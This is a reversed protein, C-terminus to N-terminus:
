DLGDETQINAIVPVVIHGSDELKHCSLLCCKCPNVRSPKASETIPYNSRISPEWQDVYWTVRGLRSTPLLKTQILHCFMINFASQLVMCICIALFMFALPQTFVVMEMITCSKRKTLQAPRCLDRYEPPFSCPSYNVLYERHPQIMNLMTIASEM